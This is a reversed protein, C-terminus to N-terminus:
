SHEIANIWRAASLTRAIAIRSAAVRGPGVCRCSELVFDFQASSVPEGKKTCASKTDVYNLVTRMVLLMAILRHVSLQVLEIVCLMRVRMTQFMTAAVATEAAAFASQIELGHVGDGHGGGHELASARVTGLM